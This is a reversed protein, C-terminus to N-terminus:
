AQTKSADSRNREELESDLGRRIQDVLDALELFKKNHSMSARFLRPEISNVGFRMVRDFYTEINFSLFENKM